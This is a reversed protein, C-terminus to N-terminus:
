GLGVKGLLCWYWTHWYRGAQLPPVLPFVPPAAGVFQQHRRRSVVALLRTLQFRADLVPFERVAFVVRGPPAVRDVVAVALRRYVLPGGANELVVPPVVSCAM